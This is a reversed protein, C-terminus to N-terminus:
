IAQNAARNTSYPDLESRNEHNEVKKSFNDHRGPGTNDHKRGLRELTTNELNGITEPRSWFSGRRFTVCIRPPIVEPLAKKSQKLDM